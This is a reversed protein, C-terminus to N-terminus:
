RTESQRASCISQARSQRGSTEPGRRDSAHRRRMPDLLGAAQIYLKPESQRITPLEEAADMAAEMRGAAMLARIVISQAEYLAIQDPESDPNTQLVQKHLEQAKEAHRVADAPRSTLLLSEALQYHSRGVMRVYEPVGPFEALLASQVDLAKQMAAEAEDPTTAALAQGLAVQAVALRMRYTPSGPFRDKLEELLRASEKYKAVAQDPRHTIAALLGLNYEVSALELPYQTVVPFEAALKSLLNQARRLHGGAEDTRGAFLLQGLNNSARAFQWRPAPLPHQVEVLPSLQELAARFTTEAEANM